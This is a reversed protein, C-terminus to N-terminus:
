SMKEKKRQITCAVEISRTRAYCTRALTNRENWWRVGESGMLEVRESKEDDPL